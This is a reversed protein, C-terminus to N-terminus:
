VIEIKFGKAIVYLDDFILARFENHQEHRNRILLNINIEAALEVLRNAFREPGTMLLGYSKKLFEELPMNLYRDAARWNGFSDITAKDLVQAFLSRDHVESALHVDVKTDLYEILLPHDKYVQISYFNKCLLSFEQKEDFHIRYRDSTSFDIDVYTTQIKTLNGGVGKGFRFILEQLDM